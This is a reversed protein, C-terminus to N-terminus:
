ETFSVTHSLIVKRIRLTNNWVATPLISFTPIGIVMAFYSMVYFLIMWSMDRLVRRFHILLPWIRACPGSFFRLIPMAVCTKM